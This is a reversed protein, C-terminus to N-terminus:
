LSREDGPLPDTLNAHESATADHVPGELADKGKFLNSLYAMLSNNNKVIGKTDRDSEILLRKEQNATELLKYLEDKDKMLGGITTEQMRIVREYLEKEREDMRVTIVEPAANEKDNTDRGTAVPRTEDHETSSTNVEVVPASVDTDTTAQQLTELGCLDGM